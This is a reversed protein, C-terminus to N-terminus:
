SQSMSDARANGVELVETLEVPSVHGAINLLVKGDGNGLLVSNVNAYTSLELDQLRGGIMGGVNIKYKGAPLIKGSDDMGDWEIRHDGQSRAGTSFSRLLQGQENHIRVVIDNLAQPLKVMSVISGLASKFGYNGLVLVDQGVLSSAQLAQSSTMATNLSAFQENMKGIGDVTSFSAMQAIMQENNVPKFPDQHALQQTLLSLFDEQKLVSPGTVKEGGLGNRQNEQVAKLKDIYSGSGAGGTGEIPNM